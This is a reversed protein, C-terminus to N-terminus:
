SRHACSTTTVGEKTAAAGPWAASATGTGVAGFGQQQAACGHVPRPMQHFKTEELLSRMSFALASQRSWRSPLIGPSAWGNMGARDTLPHRGVLIPRVGKLRHTPHQAPCRALGGGADLQHDNPLRAMVTSITLRRRDGDSNM